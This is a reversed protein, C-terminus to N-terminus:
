RRMNLFVSFNAQSAFIAYDSGSSILIELAMALGDDRIFEEHIM